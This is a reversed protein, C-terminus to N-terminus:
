RIKPYLKPNRLKCDPCVRINRSVSSCAYYISQYVTDPAVTEWDEDVVGGKFTGNQCKPCSGEHIECGKPVHREKPVNRLKSDIPESWFMNANVYFTRM